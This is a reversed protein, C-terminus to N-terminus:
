LPIELDFSQGRLCNVAQHLGEHEVPFMPVHRAIGAATSDRWRERPLPNLWVVSSTYAYLTKLFAVTDVLRIIDDNGRAAGADSLIIVAAGEIERQLVEPLPRAQLLKPETYLYGGQLAQIDAAAEDMVSFIDRRTLRQLLAKNRPSRKGALVDHFYYVSVQECRSSQRIARLVINDCFHHFPSMSGLRDALLLPRVANRQRAKLVLPVTVGRRCRLAISAAIDLETKPGSRTFQRLRRTAQVVQRYGLVYRPSLILRAHTFPELVTLLSHASIVPAEKEERLEPKPIPPPLPAPPTDDGALAVPKKWSPIQPQEPGTEPENEQHKPLLWNDLGFEDALHDFLSFLTEREQLSKAWLACCLTRLDDRSQWGFGAQLASYLEQYDEPALRFHWCDRLRNFLIWPFFELINDRNM